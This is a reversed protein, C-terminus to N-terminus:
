VGAMAVLSSTVGIRPMPVMEHALVSRRIRVAGRRATDSRSAMLCSTSQIPNLACLFIRAEPRVGRLANVWVFDFVSRNAVRAGSSSSKVWGPSPSAAAAVPALERGSPSELSGSPTANAKSTATSSSLSPALALSAGGLGLGLGRGPEAIDISNRLLAVGVPVSNDCGRGESSVCLM